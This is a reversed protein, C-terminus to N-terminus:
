NLLPNHRIPKMHKNIKGPKLKDFLFKYEREREYVRVCESLCLCVYVCVCM